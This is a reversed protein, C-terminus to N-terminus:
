GGIPWCCWMPLSVFLLFDRWGSILQLLMVRPCAARAFLSVHLWAGCRGGGVQTLVRRASPDTRFLAVISSKLAPDDLGELRAALQATSPRHDPSPPSGSTRDPQAGGGGPSGRDDRRAHSQGPSAPSSPSASFRGHAAVQPAYAGMTDM